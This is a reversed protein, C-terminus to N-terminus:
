LWSTLWTSWWQQFCHTRHTLPVKIMSQPLFTRDAKWISHDAGASRERLSWQGVQYMQWREWQRRSNDGDDASVDAASLPFNGIVSRIRTSIMGRCKVQWLVLGKRRKWYSRDTAQYQSPCPDDLESTRAWRDSRNMEDLSEIPDVDVQRWSSRVRRSWVHYNQRHEKTDSLHLSREWTYYMLIRQELRVNVLQNSDAFCSHRDLSSAMM